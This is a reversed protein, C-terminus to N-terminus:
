KRKQIDSPKIGYNNCIVKIELQSLARGRSQTIKSIELLAKTIGETKKSASKKPKKRKSLRKSMM